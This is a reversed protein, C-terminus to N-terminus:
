QQLITMNVRSPKKEKEEKNGFTGSTGGVVESRGEDLYYKIKEGSVMNQGQYAKANGTLTVERKKSLYEMKDSTGLWEDRTIEVNGVCILKNVQQTASAAQNDDNMTYHVTMEDCRIHVDGQRADVNGKFLVSDSKEVSSMSDAEVYIPAEKGIVSSAFFCFMCILVLRWLLPQKRNRQRRM